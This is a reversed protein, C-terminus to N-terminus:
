GATATINTIDNKEKESPEYIFDILRMTAYFLNLWEKAGAEKYAAALLSQTEQSQEEFGSDSGWENFYAAFFYSLRDKLRNLVSSEQDAKQEEQLVVESLLRTLTQAKYMLSSVLGKGGSPGINQFIPLAKILASLFEKSFTASFYSGSHKTFKFCVANKFEGATNQHNKSTSLLDYADGIAEFLPFKYYVINIGYSLTVSPHLKDAPFIDDLKKLLNFVSQNGNQVPALFLLDDGGIYIPKGGYENILGAAEAGFEALTESFTQYSEESTLKQIAKGINDGDAQVVCFYKHRPLFHNKLEKYEEEEFKDYFSSSDDDEGWLSESISLLAGPVKSHLEMASIEPTSPIMSYKSLIPDYVGRGERLRESLAVKYINKVDFLELLENVEPEEPFCTDELEAAELYPTLESSLKGGSIDPIDKIVYRIRFFDKWFTVAQDLRDEEKAEGALLCEKALNRLASQIAQDVSDSTMDNARMFLRDPYIGAGYLDKSKLGAPIKPILIHKGEPDLQLILHKMLSSLLYSAAWLERTKRAELLTKVIPGITLGLYKHNENKM